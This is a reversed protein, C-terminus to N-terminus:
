HQFLFSVILIITLFGDMMRSNGYIQVEQRRKLWSDTNVVSIQKNNVCNGSTTIVFQHQLPTHFIVLLRGCPSSVGGAGVHRRALSLLCSVGLIGGVSSVGSRTSSSGAVSTSGKWSAQQLFTIIQAVRGTQSQSSTIFFVQVCGPSVILLIILPHPFFLRFSGPHFDPLTDIFLRHKGSQLPAKREECRHHNPEEPRM